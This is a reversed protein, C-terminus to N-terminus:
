EPIPYAQGVNSPEDLNRTQVVHVLRAPHHLIEFLDDRVHELWQEFHGLIGGTVGLKM